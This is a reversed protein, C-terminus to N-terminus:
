AEIDIAMKCSIWLLLAYYSFPMSLILFIWRNKIPTCVYVYTYIHIYEYVGMHVYVYVYM